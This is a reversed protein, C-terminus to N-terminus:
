TIAEADNDSTQRYACFLGFIIGASEAMRIKRESQTM